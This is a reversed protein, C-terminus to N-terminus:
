IKEYLQDIKEGVTKMTFNEQVREGAHKGLTLRLTENTLLENIATAYAVINGNEVELGTTNKMNVWNVGSGKITFTVPPVECYMAEALAIGFAENKTISPFAFVSAAYLHLKLEQDSIKGLWYVRESYTTQKLQETLPGSGAILIVGKSDIYPEAELLLNIGKYPVHRGIFFIIKRQQYTEKIAEISILDEKSLHFKSVNVASHIVCVKSKFKDLSKSDDLYYPTTIIIKNARKLLLKEIPKYFSYIGNSQEIIDSHWHVILKTYTPLTLLLFVSVLPNPAHFHVINPKFQKIMRKLEFIYFFSLPQSAIIKKIGIRLIQIDGDYTLETKRGQNFCIVRHEYENLNHVIQYCTDEIGGQYPPYFKSIHLIRKM